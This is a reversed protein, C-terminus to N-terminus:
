RDYTKLIKRGKEIFYNRPRKNGITYAHARIVTM